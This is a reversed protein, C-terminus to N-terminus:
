ASPQAIQQQTPPAISQSVPVHTQLRPDGSNEMLIHVLENVIEQCVYDPFELIQSIDPISDLQEPTLCIYQPTKIYDVQVMALEFVSDDKGYRIELRVPSANGYRVGGDKEVLDYSRLNSLDLTRSLNTVSEPELTVKHINAVIDVSSGDTVNRGLEKNVAYYFDPKYVTAPNTLNEIYKVRLDFLRSDKTWRAVATNDWNLYAILYNWYEGDYFAYYEGHKCDENKTLLRQKIAPGLIFSAIKDCHIDLPTDTGKGLNNGPIYPNTPIETDTNVNHIFYYPRKYSPKQYFNSIVIPWADSTLRKAAFSYYKDPSYCKVKSRAKFICICNLIHMYDTPLEVECTDGYLSNVANLENFDATVELPKGAYFVGGQSDQTVTKIPKLMATSKLVRIDDTTQQNVDYINYRKNIYQYISKNAAYNFDGLLLSPADVKNM